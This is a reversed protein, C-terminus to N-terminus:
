PFQEADVLDAADDLDMWHGAVYRAQVDVGDDLLANLVDIMSARPLTGDSRMRELVGRLADSGRRAFRALGIWEGSVPMAEPDHGLRTVAVTDADLYHGRFPKACAVLDRLRAAAPGTRERWLADVALCVDAPSELLGDLIYQRFLIDGYGVVWEGDLADAACALSAAEGTSAHLDNDVTRVGPLNVMEKRYGRVVTVDRIGSSHLSDVLRRLLPIGRVNLMCKPREATLAGLAEGRSAALLVARPARAARPLYRAEDRALEGDGTLAFIDQVSAVRHEVHALCQERHITRSVEQMATVAARLNHNAWIALAIGADRFAQTPTAHYTTPVVVVPLRTGFAQKFALVEDATRQKSHILVADAGAECYAEARRLAEDLGRGAILAEIRAVIRFDPDPQSDKGAALKGCFEQADALPQNEGIFSNTKPFLKDEICVGAIGRECLKRVFRRFNNFNGHGTDGDVLIPLTTADAMFELMELVQTWSAENSDRVGLAASITLGSAWIGGFGAQEVIKASIGDHAEMLFELEPSELMRRLRESRTLAQPPAAARRPATAPM